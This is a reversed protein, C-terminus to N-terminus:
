QLLKRVRHLDHLARERLEEAWGSDAWQLVAASQRVHVGGLSRGARVSAGAVHHAALQRRHLGQVAAEAQLAGRRRSLGHGPGSHDARDGDEPTGHSGDHEEQGQLRPTPPAEQLLLHLRRRQPHRLGVHHFASHHRRRGDKANRRRTRRLPLGDSHLGRFLPHHLAMRPAVQARM